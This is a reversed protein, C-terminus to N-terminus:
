LTKRFILLSEFERRPSVSDAPQDERSDLYFGRDSLLSILEEPTVAFPPGEKHEWIPFVLAIVTGGPKVLRAVLDAYDSRRQPDIACFCTYELLYDYGHTMTAPLAFIDAQLIEVPTQPDDLKQMDRVADEAFDVATVDFGHRAFMRADYGRGAGLVIMKGPTFQGSEALRQFVPTPTGIDWRARDEQYAQEWFAPSNVTTM